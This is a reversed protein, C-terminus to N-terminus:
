NVGVYKFIQDTVPVWGPTGSIVAQKGCERVTNSHVLLNRDTNKIFTRFLNVYGLPRDKVCISWAAGAIYINKIEPYFKLYFELEELYRVAIQNIRSNVYNFLTPHTSQGSVIEYQYKQLSNPLNKFFERSNSYWLNNSELESFCGYSSLVATQITPESEIFNIINNSGASSLLKGDVLRDWLDILIIIAPQNLM